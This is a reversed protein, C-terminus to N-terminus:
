SGIASEPFQRRRGRFGLQAHRDTRHGAAGVRRQLQLGARGALSVLGPETRHTLELRSRIALTRPVGSVRVQRRRAVQTVGQSMLWPAAAKRLAGYFTRFTRRVTVLWDSGAGPVRVAFTIEDKGVDVGARREYLAQM